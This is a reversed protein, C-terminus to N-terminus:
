WSAKKVGPIVGQHALERLKIRSINFKRYYGRSRGTLFCRNRTRVRSGNRNLKTLKIMAAERDEPSLSSNVIMAKLEARKARQSEAMKRRKNNKVITSVKAM